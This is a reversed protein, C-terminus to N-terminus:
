ADGRDASRLAALVEDDDLQHFDHYHDGVARFTNPQALCVVQDVEGRLRRLSDPAAVPVALVVAFPRQRRVALLAARMTTGTAVGDDVVIVTRDALAPAAGTLRYARRRRAIEELEIHAESEIYAADVGADRRVEEDTVIVPPDGEAVAAVALERQWPVGIKRVLMLDLPAALATAIAAAVPVGGRPLALVVIPRRLELKLLAVALAAGAEARDAFRTAM